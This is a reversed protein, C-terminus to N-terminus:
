QTDTRLSHRAYLMLTGISILFTLLVLLLIRTKLSNRRFMRPLQPKM